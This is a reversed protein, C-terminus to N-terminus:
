EVVSLDRLEELIGLFILVEKVHEKNAKLNSLQAQWTRLVRRLNKFKATLVKAADHQLTPVSWGHSVVNLFQEHEMWYNEFGFINEQFQLISPSSVPSMILLNWPLPKGSTDPYHLTWSNSTFFWDQRQLLPSAQKNSWTFKRGHLPIEVWGQANIAENFLLMDNVDGGPKNRNTPNRILNFDGVVLWDVDDPMHIHRIWDLFIQMGELTCPDYVNTLVWDYHDYNSHFDLSIAFNNSFSLSCHLQSSKWIIVLGGSAGISPLFEFADFGRPCFKKISALDFSQRKTEQLCIVNNAKSLAL